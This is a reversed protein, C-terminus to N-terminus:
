MPTNHYCILCFRAYDIKGLLKSNNISTYESIINWLYWLDDSYACCFEDLTMRKKRKKTRVLEAYERKEAQDAESLFEYEPNPAFVPYRNNLTDM